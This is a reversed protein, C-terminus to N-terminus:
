RGHRKSPRMPAPAPASYKRMPTPPAVLTPQGASPSMQLPRVRQPQPYEPRAQRQVPAPAYGPGQPRQGTPPTPPVYAPPAFGRLMPRPRAADVRRPEGMLPRMAGQPVPAYQHRAVVGAPPPALRVTEIPRGVASSVQGPPPGFAYRVPPAVRFAEHYHRPSMAYRFFDRDVFHRTEVFCWYPQYTEVYIGAGPPPLPAWGAYGGGFRWSVWAPGWVADPVWVWGFNADLLWRGYHFPAWGWDWDSEFSWGYDTSVWHGGTFYPRFGVGVIAVSPRWVRGYSGLTVWEGYPALRDYFVGVSVVGGGGSEWAEATASGSLAAAAFLAVLVRKM